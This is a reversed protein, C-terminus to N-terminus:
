FDYAMQALILLDGDSDVCVSDVYIYQSADGNHSDLKIMTLQKAATGHTQLADLLDGLTKISM